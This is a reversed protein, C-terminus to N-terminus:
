KPDPMNRIQFGSVDAIRIFNPVVGKFQFWEDQHKIDTAAQCFASIQEDMQGEKEPAPFASNVIQGGKLQITLVQLM